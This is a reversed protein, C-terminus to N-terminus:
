SALINLLQLFLKFVTPFLHFSTKETRGGTRGDTWTNEKFQIM